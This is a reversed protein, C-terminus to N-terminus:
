NTNTIHLGCAKIDFEAGLEVLKRVVKFLKIDEPEEYLPAYQEAKPIEENAPM